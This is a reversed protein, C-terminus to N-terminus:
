DEKSITYGSFKSLCIKNFLRELDDVFVPKNTFFGKLNVTTNEITGDSVHNPIIVEKNEINKIFDEYSIFEIGTIGYRYSKERMANPSVCVVIGDNEKALLLLRSTKGTGRGDIIRYM